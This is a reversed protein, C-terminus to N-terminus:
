LLFVYRSVPDLRKPYSIIVLSDGVSLEKKFYTIYFSIDFEPLVETESVAVTVLHMIGDDHLNDPKIHEARIKVITGKAILFMENEKSYQRFFNIDGAFYWIGACVIVVSYITRAVVYFLSDSNDNWDIIFIYTFILVCLIVIQLATNIVAKTLSVKSSKKTLSLRKVLEATEENTLKDYNFDKSFPIESYKKEM